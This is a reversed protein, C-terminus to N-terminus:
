IFTFSIGANGARPVGAVKDSYFHLVLQARFCDEPARDTAVPGEGRLVLVAPHSKEQGAFSFAEPKGRLKRSGLEYM